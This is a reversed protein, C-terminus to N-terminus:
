YASFHGARETVNISNYTYGVTLCHVHCVPHLHVPGSHLLRLQVSAQQDFQPRRKILSKLKSGPACILNFMM